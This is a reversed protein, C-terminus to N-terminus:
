ITEVELLRENQDINVLISVPEGRVDQMKGEFPLNRHGVYDPREYGSLNVKLFDGEEIVRAGSMDALLREGKDKPLKEAIKKLFQREPNTFTRAFM